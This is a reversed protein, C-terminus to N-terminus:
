ARTMIDGMRENVSVPRRKRFSGRRSKAKVTRIPSTRRGEASRARAEPRPIERVDEREMVAKARPIGTQWDIKTIYARIEERKRRLLNLDILFSFGAFM